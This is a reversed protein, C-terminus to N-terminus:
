LCHCEDPKEGYEKVSLDELKHRDLSCVKKNRTLCVTDYPKFHGCGAKHLMPAKKTRYNLVFGDPYKEMWDVFKKHDETGHFEGMLGGGLSYVPLRLEYNGYFFGGSMGFPVDPSRAVVEDCLDTIYM